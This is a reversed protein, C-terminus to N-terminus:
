TYQIITLGYNEQRWASTLFQNRFIVYHLGKLSDMRSILFLSLDHKKDLNDQMVNKEQNNIRYHYSSKIYFPKYGLYNQCPLLCTSASTYNMACGKEILSMIEVSFDSLMNIKWTFIDHKDPSGQQFPFTVIYLNAKLESCSINLDTSM